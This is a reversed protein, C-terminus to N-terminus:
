TPREFLFGRYTPQEPAGLVQLSEGTLFERRLQLNSRRVTELFEERNLVWGPYETDYYGSVHPRQIVVYSRSRDIFPQRTVFLYRMAGQALRALTSSWDESYQLSSSAMVVDYSRGFADEDTDHFDADPNLERGLSALASLERCHYELTLHPFLARAYLAYSGTGGGWDLLSVSSAESAALGVVYAFCLITNHAVVDRAIPGTESAAQVLGPWEARHRAAVSAVDWGRGGARPWAEGAYQWEHIGGRAAIRRIAAPIIPPLLLQAARRATTQLPRPTATSRNLGGSDM